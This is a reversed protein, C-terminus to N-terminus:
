HVVGTSELSLRVSSSCLHQREASHNHDNVSELYVPNMKEFTRITISIKRDAERILAFNQTFTVYVLEPCEHNHQLTYYGDLYKRM